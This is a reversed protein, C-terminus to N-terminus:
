IAVTMGVGVFAWGWSLLSNGGNGAPDAVDLILGFAVPGAFSGMFGICSHVAMAAGRYSPPASALAGATISASDYAQLVCYIVTISVM